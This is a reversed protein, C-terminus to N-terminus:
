NVHAKNLQLTYAEWQSPKEQQVAWTRSCQPKLVQPTHAWYSYCVPKTARLCTSDEQVWTGQLPMHARLWWIVLFTGFWYTKGFIKNLFITDPPWILFSIYCIDVKRKTSSYLNTIIYVPFSALFKSIRFEQLFYGKTWRKKDLWRHEVLSIGRDPIRIQLNRFINFYYQLTFGSLKKKQPPCQKKIICIDSKLKSQQPTWKM